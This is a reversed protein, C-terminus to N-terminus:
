VLLNWLVVKFGVYDTLKNIFDFGQPFGKKFSPNRM